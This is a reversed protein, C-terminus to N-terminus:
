GVALLEGWTLLCSLAVAALEGKSVERPPLDGQVERWYGNLRKQVVLLPVCSLILAAIACLADVWTKAYFLGRNGAFFFGAWVPHLTRISCPDLGAEELLGNIESFQKWVLYLNLFPVFLGITRFALNFDLNLYEKFDKWNRYFWYFQYYGGSVVFFLATRGLPRAYSREEGPM